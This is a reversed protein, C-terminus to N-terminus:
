LTGTDDDDDLVLLLLVAGATEVTAEVLSSLVRVFSDLEAAFLFALLSLPVTTQGGVIEM